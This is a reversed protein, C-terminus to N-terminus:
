GVSWMSGRKSERNFHFSGRDSGKYSCLSGVSGRNCYTSCRNFGVSLCSGTKLSEFLAFHM